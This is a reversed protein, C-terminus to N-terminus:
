LLGFHDSIELVDFVDLQGGMKANAFEHLAPHVGSQYGLLAPCPVTHPQDRVPEFCNAVVRCPRDSDGAIPSRARMVLQDAARLEAVMQFAERNVELHLVDGAPEGCAAIRGIAQVFHPCWPVLNYTVLAMHMEAYTGFTASFHKLM